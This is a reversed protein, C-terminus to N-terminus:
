AWQSAAWIFIFTFTGCYIMCYSPVSFFLLLSFLVLCYSHALAIPMHVINWMIWFEVKNHRHFLILLDHLSLKLHHFSFKLHSIATRAPNLWQIKTINPAKKGYTILSQQCFFFLESYFLTRQIPARASQKFGILISCVTCTPEIAPRARM